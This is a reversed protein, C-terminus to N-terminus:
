TSPDTSKSPLPCLFQHVLGQLHGTVHFLHPINSWSRLYSLIGFNSPPGIHRARSTERQRQKKDHAKGCLVQNNVRSKRFVVQESSLSKRSSDQRRYAILKASPFESVPSRAASVLPSFSRLQYTHIVICHRVQLRILYVTGVLNRRDFRVLNWNASYM